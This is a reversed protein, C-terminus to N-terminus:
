WGTKLWAFKLKKVFTFSSFDSRIKVRHFGYLKSLMEGVKKWSVNTEAAFHHINTPKQQRGGERFSEQQNQITGM